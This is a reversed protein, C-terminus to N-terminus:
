IEFECNIRSMKLIAVLNLKKDTKATFNFTLQFGVVLIM